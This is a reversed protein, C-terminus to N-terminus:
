KREPVLYCKICVPDGEFTLHDLMFLFPLGYTQSFFALGFSYPTGNLHPGLLVTRVRSVVRFTKSASSIGPSHYTQIAYKRGIPVEQKHLFFFEFKFHSYPEKAGCRTLRWRATCVSGGHWPFGRWLFADVVVFELVGVVRIRGAFQLRSLSLFRLLLLLLLTRM